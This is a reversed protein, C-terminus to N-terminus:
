VHGGPTYPEWMHRPGRVGAVGKWNGEAEPTVKLLLRGLWPDLERLPEPLTPAGSGM